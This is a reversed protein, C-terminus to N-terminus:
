GKHVRLFTYDLSFHIRVSFVQTIELSLRWNVRRSNFLTSIQTLYTAKGGRLVLGVMFITRQTFVLLSRNNDNVDNFMCTDETWHAYTYKHLFFRPHCSLM